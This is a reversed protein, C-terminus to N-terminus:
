GGGGGAPHSLADSASFERDIFEIVEDATASQLQSVLAPSDWSRRRGNLKALLAELRGAIREQGDAQNVSALTRELRDLEADLLGGAAAPYSEAILTLLHSVLRRPDPHDFLLTSPLRLGTLLSLKNRLEVASLSDFGLEKFTREPEIVSPSLSGLVAAAETRVTRLVVGEHEDRPVGALRRALSGSLDGDRRRPTHAAPVLDRLPPSLTGTRARAHLTVRDVRMAVLQAEATRLAAEDFLELAEESSLAGLGQLALRRRDAEGLRETMGSQQAWLGWGISVAQLGRARRYVALADLFANAAAYGGQGASGLTGAASSFLAFVALDLGETLEHLHWAAQIKAAAARDVQEVTLAEVMGDDLVGAAHVIATLPHQAHVQKLLQALQQRDAVDCAAVRVDAGLSVLEDCLERAGQAAPGSRSALLINRAGHRAALHLALQAGLGGTGGTILVTGQPDISAPITLVIKGVQRAQSLARFAEPARRMDWSRVALPRVARRELLALVSALMTQIRRPGADVLNLIQYLVGPHHRAVEVPNRIDTKGMEIFRGGQALLGLSADVAENALSNLVVDVGRGTTDLFREKFDLTRSSARHKEDLGLTRLAGWKQPSATAFVQAGLLQALQVAATGVGGAGAHILVSEGRQLGALEVLGYYATLFAIPVSAAQVFSFGDPVRVIMRHDAIALPGFAGEVLGMVREGVALGEVDSGVEIVVGAGEGGFPERPGGDLLGLAVMVDRFNLGAARMAVRVESPELPRECDTCAVLALRDLTGWQESDLRWVSHGAPATLADHRRAARLRPVAVSGGRIAFQAEDMALAEPLAQWSATDGDIDVLVFRGPHEIQASRVLGWIPASALSGVGEGPTVEVARNTILVLRSAAFREDALWSQLTQLTRHTSARAAQTLRQRESGDCSCDVLVTTPIAAGSDLADVCTKISEHTHSQVGAAALARAFEAGPAEHAGILAWESQVHQRASSDIGIPTWELAYLSRTRHAATGLQASTAARLTLSAVTMVPEGDEGFITLSLEEQATARLRARASSRGLAYLAVDNWAFPLRPRDESDTSPLCLAAAQLAADLLAPHMGFQAAGTQEAPLEIEAFVEDHGRWACQLGSFSPGYCLGRGALQDRLQEVDVPVANPPPWATPPATEAGFPASAAAAAVALTGRAHRIWPGEPANQESSDIRAYLALLRSGEEDPESVSLQIQVGECAPLALPTDLVLERLHDCGLQRGAHLALELFATAPLLAMGNVTHEALWPHSSLSLRGTFLRGDGGALGVAAGLLPHAAQDLGASALDSAGAHTELWFRSRQFPYSPLRLRRLGSGPYLAAWDVEVGRVWLQALSDLFRSFGGDHRRLTGVIAVDGPDKLIDEASEQLGITLVPHSSIEAFARHGHEILTRTVAAFRVTQRLNRYWYEGDLEATDLLEGTVASYFPVEGRRPQIGACGDLLEERITEVQASHAAYDVPILRTRIDQRALQHRLGELAGCEGSVVLSAPGNAAAVSIQGDWRNLLSELEGEGCAISLMGGRGALRALARSRLAVLRAADELSLGGAVHAAAIEGQSHGAVAAPQVGCGRWLTALAVMVAFLAPQVVDVRELDSGCSQLVSELSWDVFPALAEGCAGIQEAFLPSVRLLEAAMGPWQSGQGPFVFVARGAGGAAVKGRVSRGGPREDILADAAELLEERDEGLLVARHAFTCRSTLSLGVNRIELGDDHAVFSRLRQTQALLGAASRGSIVWPLVHGAAAIVASRAAGDAIAGSAQAEAEVGPAEELILHANTGSIGFSSVGARRPRGSGRWMRKETLLGLAGASWDVRSSPADINLTMPLARYRMALVMKIVGAVGAAAITHGINSKISGLWVPESEPRGRGYTALLAEAEIPDGLTTGTGHAEVADIEAPQLGANTLAQVIVREQAPGSPASLGNSAGDQNVASGRIVALVHHANRQAESLRELLLVGMGEAFGTGDAADAFPKCRGDAALGRQRSFETFAAPTVLVTVGGALALSCENMRLAHCALHLAVLSSSCATDITMAPGELGFVYAIRGSAASGLSGIAGYGELDKPVARLSVYDSTSVGVFVGTQTRRLTTPDIGADEIAEWSGELLLRQQPDMALAERPSIEFFAADFDCADNVFGGERVYSTGQGDPDPDYIRELDWGRDAPFEGIADVGSALLEWLSEPSHAGGPYRCSMGVIAIPESLRGRLQKNECRLADAEKASVRLARVVDELKASV